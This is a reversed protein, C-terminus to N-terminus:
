LINKEVAEPIDQEAIKNKKLVGINYKQTTFLIYNEDTILKNTVPDSIACRKHKPGM